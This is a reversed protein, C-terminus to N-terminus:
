LALNIGDLDVAGAGALAQAVREILLGASPDGTGPPLRQAAARAEALHARAQAPAHLRLYVEALNAHLSPYFAAVRVDGVAEAAHLARLHWDRQAAPASHMHAVFHAAVCAWYADGAGLAEAYLETYLTRAADRRGQVALAQARGLRDLVGGDVESM